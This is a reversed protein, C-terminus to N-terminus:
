DFLGKSPKSGGFLSSSGGGFLGDDDSDDSDSGFLGGSRSKKKDTTQAEDESEEGSSDSGFLGNSSKKPESDVETATFSCCKAQLLFYEQFPKEAHKVVKTDAQTGQWAESERFELHHCYFTIAPTFEGQKRMAM